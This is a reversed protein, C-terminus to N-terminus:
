KIKNIFLEEYYNILVFCEINSLNEEIIKILVNLKYTEYVKIDVNKIESLLYEKSLNIPYEKGNLALNELVRILIKKAVYTYIKELMSSEFVKYVKEKVTYKANDILIDYITNLEDEFINENLVVKDTFIENYINLERCKRKVATISNRIKWNSIRAQSINMKQALQSISTVNYFTFLKEIIIEVNEM